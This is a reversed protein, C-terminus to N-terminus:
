AASHSPGQKLRQMFAKFHPAFDTFLRPHLVGDPLAVHGVTIRFRHPQM